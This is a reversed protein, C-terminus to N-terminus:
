GVLRRLFDKAEETTCVGGRLQEERLASLLEGVRPGPTLELTAMVDGGTLLHSSAEARKLDALEALLRDFHTFDPKGNAKLSAATDAFGVHLLDRGLDEDELYYRALTTRKVEDLNVLHAFMHRRVIEALGAEDVDFGSVSSLRLRRALAGTIRAGVEDHGWFTMRGDREKATDPKGVDHLLVGLVARPSAREGPFRSAFEPSGLAALALKTHVWVDGEAHHPQGQRCGSMRMIEPAIAAFAGSKEFLEAARRPDAAFAKLLEKAVTEGPV